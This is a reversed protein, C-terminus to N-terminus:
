NKKEAEFQSDVASTAEKVSSSIKDFAGSFDGSILLSFAEGVNAVIAGLGAM